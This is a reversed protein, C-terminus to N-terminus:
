MNSNITLNSPRTSQQTCRVRCLIWICFVNKGKDKWIKKLLKPMEDHFLPYLLELLSQRRLSNSFNCWYAEVAHSGICLRFLSLRCIYQQRLSFVWSAEVRSFSNMGVLPHQFHSFPRELSYFVLQNNLAVFVCIFLLM